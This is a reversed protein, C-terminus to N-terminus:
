RDQLGASTSAGSQSVDRAQAVFERLLNAAVAARYRATSRIDDIPAVEMALAACARDLGAADGLHMGRLVAETATLRTPRDILSAAGLAIEQFCGADVQAVAALAVKSIAQANRAGVKRVWQVHAAFRRTLRIALILEGPQLATRKYGLHFDRYQLLRTGHPSVLELAADYALLAPPTDAAPSANAINGGITGRNQNAISGTWSATQALLPFERAILSSQRLDTFTTGAGVRLTAADSADDIFRLESLGCVSVFRKTELRGACLAVMLETGGAFPLRGEDRMAALVADLTGPAILDYAAADSRM